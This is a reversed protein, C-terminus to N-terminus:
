ESVLKKYIKSNLFLIFFILPIASFSATLADSGLHNKFYILFPALWAIFLITLAESKRYLNDDESSVPLKARKEIFFAVALFIVVTVGLLIQTNINELKAVILFNVAIYLVWSWLPILRGIKRTNLSGSRKDSLPISKKIKEYNILDLLLCTFLFGFISLYKGAWYLASNDLMFGCFLAALSVLGIGVDWAKSHLMQSRPLFQKAVEPNRKKLMMYCLHSLRASAYFQFILVQLIDFILWYINIESNM